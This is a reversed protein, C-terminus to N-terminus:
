PRGPCRRRPPWRAPLTPSAPRPAGRGQDLAHNPGWIAGLRVSSVSEGPSRGRSAECGGSGSHDGPSEDTAAPYSRGRPSSQSRGDLTSPPARQGLLQKLDLWHLRRSQSELAGRDLADLGTDLPLGPVVEAALDRQELLPEPLEEGRGKRSRPDVPANRGDAARPHKAYGLELPYAVPQCYPQSLRLGLESTTALDLLRVAPQQFRHDRGGVTIAPHPDGGLVDPLAGTLV